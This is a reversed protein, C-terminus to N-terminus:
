WLLFNPFLDGIRIGLTGVPPPSIMQAPIVKIAGYRIMAPALMLRLLLSLWSYLREHSPRKRDLVSGLPAAVAALVLYCLFLVWGFLLNSIGADELNLKQDFHLVHRAIWELLPLWLAFYKRVLWGPILGSAGDSVFLLVFYAFFFRFAIRTAPSWRAEERPESM